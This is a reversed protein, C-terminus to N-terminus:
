QEVFDFLFYAEPLCAFKNATYVTARLRPQRKKVQSSNFVTSM